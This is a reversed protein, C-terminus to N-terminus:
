FATVVSLCYFQLVLCSFKIKGKLKQIKICYMMEGEREERWVSGCKKGKMGEERGRGGGRGERRKMNKVNKKM